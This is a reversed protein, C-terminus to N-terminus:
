PDLDLQKQLVPLLQQIHHQLHELAITLEAATEQAGSADARYSDTRLVTLLELLKEAESEIEQLHMAALGAQEQLGLLQSVEQWIDQTITTEM